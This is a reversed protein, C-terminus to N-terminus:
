RSVDVRPAGKTFSLSSLAVCSDEFTVIGLGVFWGLIRNIVVRVDVKVDEGGDHGGLSCVLTQRAFILRELLLWCGVNRGM